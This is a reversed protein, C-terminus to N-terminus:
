KNLINDKGFQINKAGKDYTLQGYIRSNIELGEM